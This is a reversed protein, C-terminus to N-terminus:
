EKPAPAAPLTEIVAKIFDLAAPTDIRYTVDHAVLNPDGRETISVLHESGDVPSIWFRPGGSDGYGGGGNGLVQNMSLTLCTHNFGRYESYVMERHHPEGIGVPTSPRFTARSGYGVALIKTDPGLQDERKLEDLFGVPPLAAPEIGSPVDELVLLGLDDISISGMGHADWFDVDTARAPKYGPHTIIAAVRLRSAEVAPDDMFTVYINDLTIVGNTMLWELNATGHGATLFIGTMTGHNNIFKHILTGSMFQLPNPLEPLSPIVLMVAGVNPHRGNDLEGFTIARVPQASTLAAVVALVALWTTKTKM